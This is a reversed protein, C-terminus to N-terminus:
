WKSGVFRRSLASPACRPWAVHGQVVQEPTIMDYQGEVMGDLASPGSM